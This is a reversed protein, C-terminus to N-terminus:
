RTLQQAVSISNAGNYSYNYSSRSYDDDFGGNMAVVILLGGLLVYLVTGVIGLIFGALALGRNNARGEDAARMGKKGVIMAPISTFFACGLVFTALGLGLAWGGLKNDPYHTAPGFNQGQPYGGPYPSGYAPPQQNYPQQAGYQGQAPDSGPTNNAYPDNNNPTNTSM